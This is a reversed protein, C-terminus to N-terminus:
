TEVPFNPANVTSLWTPNKGEITHANRLHEV